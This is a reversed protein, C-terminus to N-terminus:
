VKYRATVFDLGERQTGVGKFSGNDIDGRSGNGESGKGKGVQM